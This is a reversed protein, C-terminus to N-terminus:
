ARRSPPARHDDTPYRVPHDADAPGPCPSAATAPRCGGPRCNGAQKGQLPIATPDASLVPRRPEQREHPAEAPRVIGEAILSTPRGSHSVCRYPSDRPWRASPDRLRQRARRAALGALVAAAAELDAVFWTMLAAGAAASEDAVLDPGTRFSWCGGRSAGLIVTCADIDLAARIETVSRLALAGGGAASLRAARVANDHAGPYHYSCFFGLDIGFPGLYVNTFGSVLSGTTVPSQHPVGRHALAATLDDVTRPAPQFAVLGIGAPQHPALFPLGPDLFELNLNGLGIGGTRAAGYHAFPWAVPLALREHCFRFAEEAGPMCVGVHDIKYALSAEDPHM